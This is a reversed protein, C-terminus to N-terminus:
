TKQYNLITESLRSEPAPFNLGIGLGKKTRGSLKISNLLKVNDPNESVEENENLNDGASYFESPRNGIRRSYFLNGKNFLETGETFFARNESFVQEFPGLNLVVDDFKTQGFDPVLTADLTFSDNIGYKIDMGANFATESEGDFYEQNVSTFPYFSLRTPPTPSAGSFLDTGKTFTTKDKRLM